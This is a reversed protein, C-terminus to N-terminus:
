QNIVGASTALWASQNSSYVFPQSSCTSLTIGAVFFGRVNAPTTGTTAGGTGNQCFTLIMPQGGVGAPITWSTLSASLIIINSTAATSFAPTASFSVVNEKAVVVTGGSYALTTGNDILASNILSATGNAKPITNSTLSTSTTNGTSSPADWTGDARLFNSTGGGSAPVVGATTSTFVPLRAAPVTGSGLNSANLATLSTGLGFFAAATVNGAWVGNGSADNLTVCNATACGSTVSGGQDNLKMPSYAVGPQVVQINGFGGVSDSEGFRMELGNAVSRIYFQRVGFGDTNPDTATISNSTQTATIHNVTPDPYDGALDGSAPGSPVGGGGGNNGGGGSTQSWSATSSAMFLLVLLIKMMSM